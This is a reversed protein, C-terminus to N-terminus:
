ASWKGADAIAAECFDRHVDMGIARFVGEEKVDDVIRFPLHAFSV